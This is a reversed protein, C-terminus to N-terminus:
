EAAEKGSPKKGKRAEKGKQWSRVLEAQSGYPLGYLNLDAESLGYSFGSSTTM